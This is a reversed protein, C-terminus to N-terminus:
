CTENRIRGVDDVTPPKFTGRSRSSGQGKKKSPLPNPQGATHVSLHLLILEASFVLARACACLEIRVWMGTEAGLAPKTSFTFPSSTGSGALVSSFGLLAMSLPDTPKSESAGSPSLPSLPLASVSRDVEVAGHSATGTVTTTTTMTSTADMQVHMNPVSSVADSTDLDAHAQFGGSEEVHDNDIVPAASQNRESFPSLLPDPEQGAGVGRSASGESAYKDKESSM